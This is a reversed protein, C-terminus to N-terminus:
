AELRRLERQAIYDDSREAVAAKFHRRAIDREGNRLAIQGLMREAALITAKGTLEKMSLYVDEAAEVGQMGASFAALFQYQEADPRLELVEQMLGHALKFRGTEIAKEARRVLGDAALLADVDASAGAAEREIALDYEARADADSLLDRAEGWRALVRQLLELDSGLEMGRFRDTHYTAFLERFSQAIDDASAGMEVGLAAYHDKGEQRDYLRRIQERIDVLEADLGELSDHHHETSTQIVGFAAADGGGANAADDQAQLIHVQGTVLLAYLEAYVRDRRRPDSWLRGLIEASLTGTHDIRDRIGDPFLKAHEAALREHNHGPLLLGNSRQALYRHIRKPHAQSIGHLVMTEVNLNLNPLIEEWGGQERMMARGPSLLGAQVLSLAGMRWARIAQDSTCLNQEVMATSLPLHSHRAIAQAMAIDPMDLGLLGPLNLGPQDSQWFHLYGQRLFFRHRGRQNQTDVITGEESACARMLVTALSTKDLKGSDDLEPEQAGGGLAMPEGLQRRLLAVLRDFDFPKSLFLNSGCLRQMREVEKGGQFFGSMLVVPLDATRRRLDQVLTHPEPGPLVLDVLALDPLDEACQEAADSCSRALIVEYGLGELLSGLSDSFRKDDDLVLIRTV